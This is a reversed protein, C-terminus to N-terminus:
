LHKKSKGFATYPHSVPSHDKDTLECTDMLNDILRYLEMRLEILNEKKIQVIPLCLDSAKGKKTLPIIVVPDKRNGQKVMRAEKLIAKRDFSVSLGLTCHIM